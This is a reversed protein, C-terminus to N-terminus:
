KKVNLVERVKLLLDHISYPKQIFNINDRIVGSQMIVNPTYGSTYIVKIGPYLKAVSDALQRGNMGPMILDTILLEISDGHEKVIELAELPSIATLVKYGFKELITKGMELINIEDEVMLITENGYLDRERIQQNVKMAEKSIEEKSKYQPIYIKITTGKGLESYADIYGNNQKVIGYVTSLGLGTGKGVEKTTYFPEFIHKLTERDMGRGNDTVSIMVYNGPICAAHIRCYSEDLKVNKTEIVIKGVGPSIADRANTCLNTLIQDVQVPDVKVDYLNEGPIWVLEINEGIIESLLKITPEIVRNLNVVEPKIVQKRAFGLLQKVLDSSRMATEYIQKIYKRAPSDSPFSNLVLETDGMIITLMNNFDHAIGGALRGIAELKQARALQIQLKEKEEEAKRLRTIDRVFEVIGIVEGTDSDKMPYSFLEIWQDKGPLGPVVERETKGTKMCRVTPCPDCPKDRDRYARYCKKGELPVNEAYWKNMFDNVYRIALDPDLVSIGEQIATLISDFFRGRDELAREKKKQDTTDMGIGFKLERGDVWRIITDVMLFYKNFVPNYYEWKYSRRNGKLIVDNICFDCPHDLNQLERYCLKGAPDRGLLDKVYKSVLVIEYSRPDSLCIFQDITDIMSVLPEWSSRFYSVSYM